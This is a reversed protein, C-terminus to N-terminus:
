KENFERIRKVHEEFCEPCRWYRVGKHVNVENDEEVRHFRKGTLCPEEDPIIHPGFCIKNITLKM